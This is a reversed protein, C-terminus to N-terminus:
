HGNSLSIVCVDVFWVWNGANLCYYPACKSSTLRVSFVMLSVESYVQLPNHQSDDFLEIFLNYVSM